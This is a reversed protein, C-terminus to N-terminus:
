RMWGLGQGGMEYSYKEEEAVVPQVKMRQLGSYVLYRTADLIHDNAKIIKGKKDRNYLRFEEFFPRCSKFVKLKGASLRDYVASIGSEVSKDPLEVNVRHAKYKDLFTNRDADLIGAADGVGPIWLGRAKIAEVHVPTEAQSRRYVSYIYIIDNERDWAGWVIATVGSLACDMGFGRPWHKPPGGDMDPWAVDSEAFPYVAGAGLTPIGRMRAERQYPQISQMLDAKAEESLHPADDWSAGIVLRM